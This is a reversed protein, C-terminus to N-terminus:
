GNENGEELLAASAMFDKLVKSFEDISDADIAWRKTELVIFKGGGADDTKLTLIQGEPLKKTDQCSDAEQWLKTKM